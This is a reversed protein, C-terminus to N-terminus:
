RTAGPTITLLALFAAATIAADRLSLVVTKRAAAQRPGVQVLVRDGVRALLPRPDFYALDADAFALALGILSIASVGLSGASLWEASSAASV